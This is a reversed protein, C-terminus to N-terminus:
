EDQARTRGQSVRGVMGYLLFVFAVAIRKKFHYPTHRNFKILYSMITAITALAIPFLSLYAFNM